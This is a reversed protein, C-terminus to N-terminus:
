TYLHMYMHGVISRLSELCDCVCECVCVCVCVCVCSCDRVSFTVTNVGHFLDHADRDLALLLM